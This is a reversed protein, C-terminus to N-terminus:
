VNKYLSLAKTRQTAYDIIPSVYNLQNIDYYTHYKDWQHLHKPDVTELHPLWKKIYLANIDYKQSQTWPNFIRFYPMSDTGTGAVWQWNGNNSAPDYDVLMSAFYHEGIRWDTLLLKVLFSSVILRGRNHMYGTKNLQSMCADVIPYGTRGDKWAQTWGTNNSWKIKKYKEQFPETLVRPIHYLIIAYFERWLLQRFLMNSKMTKYQITTIKSCSSTPKLMACCLERVSLLGYKLFASLQTTQYNLNNRHKGYSAYQGKKILTLLEIARKRSGEWLEMSEPEIGHKNVGRCCVNNSPSVFSIYADSLSISYKINTEKIKNCKQHIQKTREVVVLSEKNAILYEIARREFASFKVFPKDKSLIREDNFDCLYYDNYTILEITNKMKTIFSKISNTRSVAYPTIDQNFGIYNYNIKKHLERLVDIINGYFTYLNGNLSEQLDSLGEIMFRVSHISKYNNKDNDIQKHTFIFVPVVSDCLECFANLGVNDIIRFDRHFIFIGVNTTM